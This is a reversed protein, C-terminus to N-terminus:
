ARPIGSRGPRQAARHGGRRAGPRAPARDDGAAMRTQGPGAEARRGRRQSSRGSPGGHGAPGIPGPRPARPLAADDRPSATTQPARTRDFPRLRLKTQHDPALSAGSADLGRYYHKQWRDAPAMPPDRQMKAHFSDRAESWAKFRAATAPDAELPAFVPEFAEVAGREVPFFFYIPEMPEFRVWQGPRTFRWNFTFPSWDTEM